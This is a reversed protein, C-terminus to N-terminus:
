ARIVQRAADRHFDVALELQKRSWPLEPRLLPEPTPKRVNRLGLGKSTRLMRAVSAIDPFVHDPKPVKASLEISHLATKQAISLSLTMSLWTEALGSMIGKILHHIHHAQAHM